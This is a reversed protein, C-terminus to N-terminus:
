DPGGGKFRPKSDFNFVHLQFYSALSYYNDESAPEAGAKSFGERPM